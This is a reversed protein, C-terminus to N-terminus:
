YALIRNTILVAEDQKKRIEEINRREIKQVSIIWSNLITRLSIKEGESPNKLYTLIKIFYTFFTLHPYTSEYRSNEFAQNLTISANELADVLPFELPSALARLLTIKSLTTLTLFDSKLFVAKQAYTYAQGHEGRDSACLARQEWYRSNEDYKGHIKEYIDEIHSNIEVKNKDCPKYLLSTLTDYRMLNKGIESRTFNENSFGNLEIFPALLILYNKLIKVLVQANIKSIFVEAFYRHHFRVNNEKKFIVDALSHHISRELQEKSINLIQHVDTIKIDLGIANAIAIATLINQDFNPNRSQQELEEEIRHSYSKSGTLDAMSSLFENNKSNFFEKQERRPLETISYLEGHSYLIDILKDVEHSKLKTPLSFEKYTDRVIHRKTREAETTRDVLLLNISGQYHDLIEKIGRGILHANDIVWITDPFAESYKIVDYANPGTSDKLYFVKRKKSLNFSLYFSLATKGSFAPGKLIVIKRQTQDQEFFNLIHDSLERYSIRKNIADFWIPEHGLFINHNRRTLINNDTFNLENWNNKIKVLLDSVSEMPGTALKQELISHLQKFFESATMEIPIINLRAYKQKQPITFETNVIISPPNEEKREISITKAIDFEQSLHTGVIIFPNEPYISKFISHWTKNEEVAQQYQGATFITNNMKRSRGHLYIIPLEDQNTESFEENWSKSVYSFAASGSYESYAKPLVDDINFTWIQKWRLPVFNKWWSNVDKASYTEQIYKDFNQNRNTTLKSERCHEFIDTLDSDLYSADLKFDEVIREILQSVVPINDNKLNTSDISAGAGLFCHYKRSKFAEVVDDLCSKNELIQKLDM